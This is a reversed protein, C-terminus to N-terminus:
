EAAGWLRAARNPEGRSGAVRALGELCDAIGHRDELDRYIALSEEYFSLASLYERQKWTVLGLNNLANAFGRRDGLERYIPLSEEYQALAQEYDGQEWAVFGL